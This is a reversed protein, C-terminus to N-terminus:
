GGVERANGHYVGLGLDMGANRSLDHRCHFCSDDGIDRLITRGCRICNKTEVIKKRSLVLTKGCVPCRTIIEDDSQREGEGASAEGCSECIFEIKM